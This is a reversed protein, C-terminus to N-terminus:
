WAFLILTATAVVLVDDVLTRYDVLTRKQEGLTFGLACKRRLTGPQALPRQLIDGM